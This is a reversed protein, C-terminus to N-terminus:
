QCWGRACRVHQPVTIPVLIPRFCNKGFNNWSWKPHEFVHNFRKHTAWALEGFGKCYAIKPGAIHAPLHLPLINHKFVRSQPAALRPGPPIYTCPQYPLPAPPNRPPPPPNHTTYYFTPLMM